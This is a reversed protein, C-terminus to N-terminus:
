ASAAEPRPLAHFALPPNSNLHTMSSLLSGPPKGAAGKNARPHAHEAM